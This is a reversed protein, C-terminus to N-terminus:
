ANNKSSASNPRPRPSNETEGEGQSAGFIYGSGRRTHLLPADKPGDVKRRLRNVYVEILNSFPDFHEDWVHEAIEARGIVRGANRVFYELLAYEKHTLSIRRGGRNATQAATDLVLNEVALAAPKLEVPRRMLARLRALL